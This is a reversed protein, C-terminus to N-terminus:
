VLEPRRAWPGEQEPARRQSLTAWGTRLSEDPGLVVTKIASRGLLRTVEVVSREGEWRAKTSRSGFRHPPFLVVTIDRYRRKLRTLGIAHAPELQGAAVLLAAEPASAAELEALRVTLADVGDAPPKARMEALADMCRTFHDPGRTSTVGAYHAGVLRFSYNARHYLDILSAATEIAREFSSIAGSRDHAGARDDIVVTARTHWPTEEQRIMYRGRKATSPWHIKRLDDGEVYERMTYFDEGQFGSPQRLASSAVSQREGVDRPMALTEVKPHVLLDSAAAGTSRLRALSFPDVISLSAPGVTYRGRRAARVELSARRRGEPEIGHVAFRAGGAVGPPLGDDILILPATRQGLNAIDLTLTVTQGARARAPAITRAVDIEHRGSRVVVVAIIPLVVLAFGLQQLPSSGFAIGVATLVVGTTAVTWGRATPM